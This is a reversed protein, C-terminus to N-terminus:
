LSIDRCPLLERIIIEPIIRSSPASLFLFVGESLLGLSKYCLVISYKKTIQSSFYLMPHPGGIPRQLDSTPGYLGFKVMKSGNKQLFDM